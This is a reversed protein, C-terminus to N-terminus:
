SQNDKQLTKAMSLLVEVRVLRTGTWSAWNSHDEVSWAKPRSLDRLMLEVAKAFRIPLPLPSLSINPMATVPPSEVKIAENM